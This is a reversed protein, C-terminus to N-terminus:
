AAAQEAPLDAFPEFPDSTPMEAATCFGALLIAAFPATKM